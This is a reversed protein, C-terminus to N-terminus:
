FDENMTRNRHFKKYVMVTVGCSAATSNEKKKLIKM